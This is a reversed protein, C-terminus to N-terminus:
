MFIRARLTLFGPLFVLIGGEAVRTLLGAGLEILFMEFFFFFFFISSCLPLYEVQISAEVHM